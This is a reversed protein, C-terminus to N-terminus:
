KTAERLTRAKSQEGDPLKERAGSRQIRPGGPDTVKVSYEDAVCVCQGGLFPSKLEVTIEKHIGIRVLSWGGPEQINKINSSLTNCRTGCLSHGTEQDDAASATVYRYDNVIYITEPTEAAAPSDALPLFATILLAYHTILARWPRTRQPPFLQTIVVSRRCGAKERGVVWLRNGIVQTIM